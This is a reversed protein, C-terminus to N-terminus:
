KEAQKQQFLFFSVRHAIEDALTQAVNKRVNDISAESSYPTNSINYPSRAMARTEFVTEGNLKLIIDGYMELRVRSAVGDSRIALTDEDESLRVTLQYPVEAQATFTQKLVKNVLQAPRRLGAGRKGELDMVVSEVRVSSIEDAMETYLPQYGCAALAVASVTLLTKPLFKM